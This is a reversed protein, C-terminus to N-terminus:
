PKVQMAQGYSLGTGHRCRAGSPGAASRPSTGRSVPHPWSCSLCFGAAPLPQTSAAGPYTWGWPADTGQTQGDQKAAAASGLAGAGHPWTAEGREARERLVADSELAERANILPDRRERNKERRHENRWPSGM